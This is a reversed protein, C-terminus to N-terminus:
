QSSAAVRRGSRATLRPAGEVHEVRDGISVAIDQEVPKGHRAPSAQGEGRASDPADQVHVARVVLPETSDFGKVPPASTEIAVEPLVVLPPEASTDLVNTDLAPPPRRGARSAAVIARGRSTRRGRGHCAVAAATLTFTTAICVAALGVKWRARM